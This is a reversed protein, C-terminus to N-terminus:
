VTEMTERTALFPPPREKVCLCPADPDDGADWEENPPDWYGEDKCPNSGWNPNWPAPHLDYGDDNYAQLIVDEQETAARRSTCREDGMVIRRANTGAAPPPWPPAEPSPPPWDGADIDAAM